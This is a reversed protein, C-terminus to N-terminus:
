ADVIYDCTRGPSVSQIESETWVRNVSTLDKLLRGVYREFSDAFESHFTGSDLEECARYLGNIAHGSLLGPHVVLYDGNDYAIIPYELFISPIFIHLYSPFKERISHYREGVQSPTLSSMELFPRVADQPISDVESELYDSASTLPAKQVVTKTQVALNLYIWDNMTFGYQKVFRESTVPLPTDAVFLILSRALENIRPQTQFSFQQRGMALALLEIDRLEELVYQLYPDYYRHYHNMIQNIRQLTVQQNRYSKHYACNVEISHVLHHPPYYRWEAPKDLFDFVMKAVAPGYDRPNYRNLLRALESYFREARIKATLRSNSMIM